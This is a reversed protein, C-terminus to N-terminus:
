LFFILEKNSNKHTLYFTLVENTNMVHAYINRILM